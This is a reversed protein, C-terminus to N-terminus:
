FELIKRRTSNWYESESCDNEREGVGTLSLCEFLLVLLSFTFLRYRDELIECIMLGTPGFPAFCSSSFRSYDIDNPEQGERSKLRNRAGSPESFLSPLLIQDDSIPRVRKVPREQDLCDDDPCGDDSFSRWRFGKAGSKTQLGVNREYVCAYIRGIDKEKRREETTM